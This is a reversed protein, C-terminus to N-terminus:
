DDQDDDQQSTSPTYASEDSFGEEETVADMAEEATASHGASELDLQVNVENEPDPEQTTVTMEAGKHSNTTCGWLPRVYRPPRRTLSGQVGRAIDAYDKHASHKLKEDGTLDGATEKVWGKAQDNNMEFYHYLSSEDAQTM